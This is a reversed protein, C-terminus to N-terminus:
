KSSGELKRIARDYVALIQAHRRFSRDNYSVIDGGKTAADLARAAAFAEDQGECGDGSWGTVKRIAGVACFSVAEDMNCPVEDKNRFYANQCWREPKEILKRAKKLITLPKM